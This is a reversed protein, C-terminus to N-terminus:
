FFMTYKDNKWKGKHVISGKENLLIGQGHRVHDKWDGKYVYGNFYKMTGTGNRCNNHWEGIYVDGNSYTMTGEGDCLNHKWSGKYVDGNAYKMTGMGHRSGLRWGGTYVDGNSYKMIGQGEPYNNKWNGDYSNGNAYIMIGKGNLDGTKWEGKYVDGNEYKMVGHGNPIRNKGEGEYTGIGSRFTMINQDNQTTQQSTNESIDPDNKNQATVSQTTTETNESENKNVNPSLAVANDNIIDLDLDAATEADATKKEAPSTVAAASGAFLKEPSIEGGSSTEPKKDSVPAFVNESVSMITCKLANLDYINKKNISADRFFNIFADSIDYKSLSDQQLFSSINTFASKMARMIDNSTNNTNTTLNAGQNLIENKVGPEIIPQDVTKGLRLDNDLSVFVVQKKNNVATLLELFCAYSEIYKQSVFSIVLDSGRVNRLMPVIWRDNVKDFAKDAYVRLGYQEQLPVVTDKFVTEWNDSAYSIFAYSREDSCETIILKKELYEARENKQSDTLSM